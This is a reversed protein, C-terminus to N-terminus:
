KGISRDISCPKQVLLRSRWGLISEDWTNIRSKVSVMVKIASLSSLEIIPVAKSDIILVM